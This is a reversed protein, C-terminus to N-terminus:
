CSYPVLKPDHNKLAAYLEAMFEKENPMGLGFSTAEAFAREFSWGDIAMRQAACFIGTRGEGAQCHVYVPQNKPNNVFDLFEKVQHLSPSGTDIVPITLLHDPPLGSISDDVKEWCFNVMSKIKVPQGSVDKFVKGDVLDKAQTQPDNAGFLHTIAGVLSPDSTVRPGRYIKGDEVMALPKHSGPRYVYLKELLGCVIGIFNAIGELVWVLPRLM